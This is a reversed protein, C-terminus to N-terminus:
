KGGVTVKDVQPVVSAEPKKEKSVTVGLAKELAETEKLCSGDKFGKLPEISTDGSGDNPITVCIVKETAM